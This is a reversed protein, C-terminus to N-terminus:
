GGENRQMKKDNKQQFNVKSPLTSFSEKPRHTSFHM